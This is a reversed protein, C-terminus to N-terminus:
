RAGPRGPDDLWYSLPKADALSRIWDTGRNMARAAM